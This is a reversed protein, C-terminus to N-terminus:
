NSFNNSHDWKLCEYLHSNNLERGLFITLTDIESVFGSFLSSERDLKTKINEMRNQKSRSTFKFFAELDLCSCVLFIQFVDLKVDMLTQFISSFVFLFSLSIFYFRNIGDWNINLNIDELGLDVRKGYVFFIYM